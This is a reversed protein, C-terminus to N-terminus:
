NDAFQSQVLSDSASIPQDKELNRTIKKVMEDLESASEKLHEIFDVSSDEILNNEVLYIIGLIRCLPGRLLHSNV